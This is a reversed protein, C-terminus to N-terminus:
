EVTFDFINNDHRSEDNDYLFQFPTWCYEAPMLNRTVVAFRINQGKPFTVNEALVGITTTDGPEFTHGSTTFVNESHPFHRKAIDEPNDAWAIIFPKPINRNGINAIKVLFRYSPGMDPSDSWRIIEIRGTVGIITVDPQAKPPIEHKKASHRLITYGCSAFSM